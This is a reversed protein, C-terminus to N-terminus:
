RHQHLWLNIAFRSARFAGSPVSVPLVEHPLFSPFLVLKDCSPVVDVYADGQVAFVRLEGGEFGRPEVHFYYIASLLRTTKQAEASRETFTDIHRSFHAGDAHAVLQLEARATQHLRVGVSPAAEEAIAQLAGAHMGIAATADPHMHSLRAREDVVAPGDQVVEAPDFLREDKIVVSLLESVAEPGLVGDIERYIPEHLSM